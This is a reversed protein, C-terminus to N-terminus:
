EHIASSYYWLYYEGDSGDTAVPPLTPQTIADRKEERKRKLEERREKSKRNLEEKTVLGQALLKKNEARELNRQRRLERYEEKKEKAMNRFRQM